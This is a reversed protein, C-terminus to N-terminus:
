NDEQIAEVDRIPLNVNSIRCGLLEAGNAAKTPVCFIYFSWIQLKLFKLLKYLSIREFQFKIIFAFMDIASSVKM